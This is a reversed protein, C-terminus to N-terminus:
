RAEVRKEKSIDLGDLLESVKNKLAKNDGQLQDMLSMNEMSKELAATKSAATRQQKHRVVRLSSYLSASHVKEQELEERTEDLTQQAYDLASQVARLQEAQAAFAANLTSMSPGSGGDQRRQARAAALHSRQASSRKPMSKSGSPM